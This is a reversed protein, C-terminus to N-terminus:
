QAGRNIALKYSRGSYCSTRNPKESCQNQKLKGVLHLMKEVRCGAHDLGASGLCAHMSQFFIQGRVSKKQRQKKTVNLHGGAFFADM